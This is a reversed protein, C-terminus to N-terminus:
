TLEQAAPTHRHNFAFTIQWWLRRNKGDFKVLSQRKATIASIAGDLKHGMLAQLVEDRVPELDQIGGEGTRGTGKFILLVSFSSTEPQSVRGPTKSDKFDGVAPLVFASPSRQTAEDAAAFDAALGVDRLSGVTAKLHDEVLSLSPTRIM